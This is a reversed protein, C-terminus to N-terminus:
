PTKKLLAGRGTSVIIAKFASVDLVDDSKALATAHGKLQALLKKKGESEV